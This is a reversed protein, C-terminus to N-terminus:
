VMKKFYVYRFASLELQHMAYISSGGPSQVDDKLEAPHKGTELVM